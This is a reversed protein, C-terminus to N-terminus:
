GAYFPVHLAQCNVRPGAINVDFWGNAGVTGTITATRGQGGLETATMQVQGDNNVSGEAKAIAKMADWGIMGELKGNERVVILWDLAPCNAQAASHYIYMRGDPPVVQAWASGSAVAIVSAVVSLYKVSRM